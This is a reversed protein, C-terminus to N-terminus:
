MTCSIGSNKLGKKGNKECIKGPSKVREKDKEAFRAGVGRYIPSIDKGPFKELGGANSPMNEM